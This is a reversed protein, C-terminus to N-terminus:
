NVNIVTGSTVFNLFYFHDVILYSRILLFYFINCICIFANM